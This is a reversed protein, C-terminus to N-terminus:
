GLYAEKSTTRPHEEREYQLQLGRSKDNEEQPAELNPTSGCRSRGVNKARPKCGSVAGRSGGAEGARGSPLLSQVADAAAAAAAQGAVLWSGSGGLGTTLRERERQRSHGGALEGAQARM